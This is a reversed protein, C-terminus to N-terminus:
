LVSCDIMKKCDTNNRVCDCWRKRDAGSAGECATTCGSGQRFEVEHVEEYCSAYETCAEACAAEPDVAEPRAVIAPLPRSAATTSGPGAATHPAPPAATRPAACGLALVTVTLLLSRSSM